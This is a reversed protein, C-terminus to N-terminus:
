WKLMPLGNWQVDGKKVTLVDFTQGLFEMNRGKMEEVTARISWEGDAMTKDGKVGAASDPKKMYRGLFLQQSFLRMSGKEWEPREGTKMLVKRGNGDDMYQQINKLHFTFFIKDYPLGHVRNLTDRFLRNREQYEKQNFTESVDTIIGRQILSERMAMECIKLFSSGGDFVVGAVEEAPQAAIMNVFWQTKHVMALWNVTNDEKFISEDTEDHIPLRIINEDGPYAYDIISQASNDFDIVYVKKGAKKDEPTYAFSLALGTKATNEHGVLAMRIQAGEKTAVKRAFLANYYDKGYTKSPETSASKQANWAM